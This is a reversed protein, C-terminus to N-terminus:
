VKGTGSVVSCAWRAIQWEPNEASWRAMESQGNFTCDRVSISDNDFPLRIDKCRAPEAILCVSILLEIMTSELAKRM